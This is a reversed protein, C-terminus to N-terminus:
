VNFIHMLLWTVPNQFTQLSGTQRVVLVSRGGLSSHINGGNKRLYFTIETQDFRQQESTSETAAGYRKSEVTKRRHTHVEQFTM